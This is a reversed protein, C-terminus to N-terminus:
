LGWVSQSVDHGLGFAALPVCQFLNLGFQLLMLKRGVLRGLMVTRAILFFPPGQDFLADL